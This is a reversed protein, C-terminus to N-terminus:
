RSFRAPKRSARRISRGETNLLRYTDVSVKMFPFLSSPADSMVWMIMHMSEPMLSILGLTIM